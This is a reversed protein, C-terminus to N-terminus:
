SVAAETVVAGGGPQQRWASHGLVHLVLTGRCHAHVTLGVQPRQHGGGVLAAVHRGDHTSKVTNVRVKFCFFFDLQQTTEGADTWLLACLSM